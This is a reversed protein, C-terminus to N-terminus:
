FLFVSWEKERSVQTNVACTWHCYIAKSKDGPLELFRQKIFEKAEDPENKGKYNQFCVTLPVRLIKEKFLDIKNLFLVVPTKRFWPSNVIEDFLLLSEQMRNTSNDERLVQDYESLSACFIVVTVGDFCNGVVCASTAAKRGRRKAVVNGSPM